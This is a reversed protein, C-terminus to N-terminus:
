REECGDDTCTVEVQIRPDGSLLREDDAIGADEGEVEEEVEGIEIRYRGGPDFHVSPNSQMEDFCSGDEWEGSLTEYGVLHDQFGYVLNRALALNFLQVPVILLILASRKLM